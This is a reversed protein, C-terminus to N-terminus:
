RPALAKTIQIICLARKPPKLHRGGDYAASQYAADGGRDVNGMVYEVARAVGTVVANSQLDGELSRAEGRALELIAEEIRASHAGSDNQLRDAPRALAARTHTDLRRCRQEVKSAVAPVVGGSLSAVSEAALEPRACQHRGANM